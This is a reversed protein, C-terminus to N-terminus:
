KLFGSKDLVEFAHIATGENNINIKAKRLNKRIEKKQEPFIQQISHNKLKIKVMGKQPSYYYYSIKHEYETDTLKGTSDTYLRTKKMEVKHFALLMASGLYLQEFFTRDNNLQLSDLNVFKRIRSGVQGPEPYFIFEQVTNKDVIFLTKNNENYAVLEDDYANYKMQVEGFVDGDKLRIEGKEWDPQLFYNVSSIVNIYYIEGQLKGSLRNSNSNLANYYLGTEQAQIITCFLMLGLLWLYKLRKIM